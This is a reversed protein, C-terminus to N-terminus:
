KDAHCSCCCAPPLFISDTRLFQTSRQRCAQVIVAASWQRDAVKGQIGNQAAYTIASPQITRLFGGFLNPHHNPAFSEEVSPRVLYLFIFIGGPLYTKRGRINRNPKSPTTFRNQSLVAAPPPPKTKSAEKLPFQRKPIPHISQIFSHNCEHSAPWRSTLSPPCTYRTDTAHTYPAKSPSNVAIPPSAHCMSPSNGRYLPATSIDFCRLPFTFGCYIMKLM